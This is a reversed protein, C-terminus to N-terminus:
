EEFGPPVVNGFFSPPPAPFNFQPQRHSTSFEEPAPARAPAPVPAPAPGVISVTRTVRYGLAKLWSTVKAKSVKCKFTKNFKTTLEGISGVGDELIRDVKPKIVLTVYEDEFM